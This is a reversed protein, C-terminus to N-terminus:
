SFNMSKSGKLGNTWHKKETEVSFILFDKPNKKVSEHAIKMEAEGKGLM